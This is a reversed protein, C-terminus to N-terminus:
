RSGGWRRELRLAAHRMLEPHASLYWYTDSLNSHGLYTTLTPMARDIQVGSRSWGLLTETAFRHRFDHLRPGRRSCPSRLGVTRSIADFSLHLQSVWFMRGRGTLLVNPDHARAGLCADRRKAYAALARCTSVHLPVLRSKTFKSGRITIVGNKLDVDERTMRLAESVRMGTVALLGVLTRVTWPKLAQRSPLVEAAAMLQQIDQASYLYPKCRKPRFPLLRVEPVETRPEFGQLYRAFQRVVTLRAAWSTPRASAPVTAWQLALQATVITQRKEQMFACFSKLHCEAEVLRFGLGRRMALYDRMQERLSM